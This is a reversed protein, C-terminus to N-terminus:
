KWWWMGSPESKMKDIQKQPLYSSLLPFYKEGTLRELKEVTISYKQLCRVNTRWNGVPFVEHPLLIACMSWTSKGSKTMMRRLMVKYYAAPINVANGENDPIVKDGPICGTVVYLTDSKKAYARVLKELETWIGGNFDHLQPTANTFRFTQKNAEYDLRDASPIQHGRDYGSGYKFGKYLVPQCAEPLNPDPMWIESRSGEGILGRNLPYAVWLAIRKETDYRYTFSRVSQGDKEVRSTVYTAKRKNTAPVEIYAQAALPLTLALLLLLLITKKM